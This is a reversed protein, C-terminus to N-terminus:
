TPATWRWGLEGLCRVWNEAPGYVFGTAVEDKLEFLRGMMYCVEPNKRVQKAVTSITRHQWLM